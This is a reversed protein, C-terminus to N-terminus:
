YEDEFGLEPIYPFLWHIIRDEEIHLKRYEKNKILFKELAGINNGYRGILMGPRMLTIVIAGRKLVIQTIGLIFIEERAKSYMKEIDRNKNKELYYEKILNAINRVKDIKKYKLKLFYQRITQKIRMKNM